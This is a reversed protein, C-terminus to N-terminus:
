DFHRGLTKVDLQNLSMIYNRIHFEITHSLRIMTSKKMSHAEFSRKIMGSQKVFFSRM